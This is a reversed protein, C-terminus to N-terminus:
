RGAQRSETGVQVLTQVAAARQDRCGLEDAAAPALTSQRELEQVARAVLLLRQLDLSLDPAVAVGPELSDHGAAVAAGM